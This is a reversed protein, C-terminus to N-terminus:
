PCIREQGWGYQANYLLTADRPPLSCNFEGALIIKFSKFIKSFWMKLIKGHASDEAVKNIKDLIRFHFSLM